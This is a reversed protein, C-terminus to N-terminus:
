SVFHLNGLREPMRSAACSHWPCAEAAASKVHVCWMIPRTGPCTRGLTTGRPM